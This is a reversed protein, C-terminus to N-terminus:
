RRRTYAVRRERTWSGAQYSGESLLRVKGQSGYRERARELLPDAMAELRSNTVLGITYDIGEKECYEYVTPVAFGADTRIEIKVCPWVERLCAVIRRPIAVAGCSAHTNGPRPVATVLQGTESDFVLLSHYRIRTFLGQFTM